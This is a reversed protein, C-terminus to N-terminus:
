RRDIRDILWGQGDWMYILRERVFRGPQSGRAAGTLQAVVVRDSDQRADIQADELGAYLADFQERTIRARCASSLMEYAIATHGSNVQDYFRESSDTLDPNRPAPASKQSTTERAPACQALLWASLCRVFARRQMSTM